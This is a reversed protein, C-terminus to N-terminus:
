SSRSYPGAEVCFIRGNLQILVQPRTSVTSVTDTTSPQLIPDVLTSSDPVDHWRRM